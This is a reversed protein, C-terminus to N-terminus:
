QKTEADTNRSQYLHGRNRIEEAAEELATAVTETDIDGFEIADLGMDAARDHVDSQREPPNLTPCRPEEREISDTDQIETM